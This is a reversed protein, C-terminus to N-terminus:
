AASPVRRAWIFLLPILMGICGLVALTPYGWVGFVFGAGLSSGASVGGIVSDAFGQARAQQGQSVVGTLLASGAIFSGNWGVGLFFLVAMMIPGQDPDAFAALMAAIALGITGAVIVPVQGLRDVMRGTLPSCAYMGFFHGSLVVGVISLSHHHDRMYVPTMVMVMIMVAQSFAMSVLAVQAGPLRFPHEPSTGHAVRESGILAGIESAVHLPDPRLRAALYAATILFAVGGVLYPGALRPMGLTKAWGGSVGVLNPGIVAGVTAFWVVRGIARGRAQPSVCDSAAYRSLQNCALACGFLLMGAMLLAFSRQTAATAVVGAGGAAICYGLVLGFRRGHRQMVRSLLMSAAAAGLVGSMPPVGTAWSSKSDLLDRALVASVTTGGFYGISGVVQAVTLARLLRTATSALSGPGDGGEDDGLVGTSSRSAM